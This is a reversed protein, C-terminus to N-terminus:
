CRPLATPTRSSCRAATTTSAARRGEARRRPLRRGLRRPQERLARLVLRHGPSFAVAARFRADQTPLWCAMFGGYSEGMIGIREPDALGDAVLQDLGSSCTASTAAAWTASSSRPSRRGAGPRLRARQARLDRLRARDARPREDRPPHDQFAWIPGGHVHLITPFPPEAARCRSSARSRSGTPRRGACAAGTASAARPAGDHGDHALDALTPQARATSRRRGLPARDWAEVVAAFARGAGSRRARRTTARRRLRGLRGLDRRGRRRRRRVDLAVPELGRVGLALLREDDRWATWTVDVGHTDVTRAEGSAPDILLLDGAVIMRDSCVAEVVAAYTGGRRAPRGLRAPRRQARLTRARARAGSRDPRARRRVVRGRRRGRLRDRRGRRRRVLGGGLREARVALGVALEGSAVDLVYLARRRTARTRARTSSRCGTPCRRGRAGLTGSGLADTQEAGHGAVLLLIRSGDPSWEHHEVIGPRRPWSARRASRARARARLAARQRGRPSRLPLDADHRRAVLAARLGRQPRAHDAAHRLRRGRGPLHPRAATGRARRAAYRPVRGHAGDPSARVDSAHTIRGFGPEALRRYAAEIEQYLPTERLDREMRRLIRRSPAIAAPRGALPDRRRRRAPEARGRPRRDLPDGREHLARLRPQGPRRAAEAVSAGGRGHLGIRGPGGNFSLLANSEASLGIIWAGYSTSTDSPVAYLVAFLGAPTPTAPTGVNVSFNRVPHGDHLLRARGSSRTVEIRWPSWTVRVFRADVWGVRGNPRQPLQVGLRCTGGSTTTAGVIMAWRM